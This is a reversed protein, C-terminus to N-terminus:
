PPAPEQEPPQPSMEKMQRAIDDDTAPPQSSATEAPADLLHVIAPWAFVTAAVVLQVGVFPALASLLARTGVRPLGSMARAMLVAYGMPPLLFSVQLVLLLLVAVQQADGLQAILLPAVIPVVVFIMEFADLVWACAAVGLLTLAATVLPTWPSGLVLQALWQDTGFLRFVLSFTTAGVLLAFLAGSLAMTELLLSSWQAGDFARSAVAAALLVCGGVAAAEVAFMRGTFVSGLLCLIGIAASAALLNAHRPKPRPPVVHGRRRGQAWAVLAWLALICLAPVLAAHLIDQTNVIRQGQLAHGPLNSAETHARLMADGLLILVLSPPVVVGVTAAASILSLGRAPALGALRPAVLRSLLASSSAVSGNMPAVLAGVALAALSPGAGTRGLMRAASGFLADAVPLRQLLVGVLVYLPMAQLLDSELLSVLRPGVAMLIATDFAGVAVGAAAFASAVGLLLAWVPLGTGVILVALALLMWVGASSM